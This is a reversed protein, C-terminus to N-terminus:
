CTESIAVAASRSEFLARDPSVRSNLLVVVAGLVVLPDLRRYMRM